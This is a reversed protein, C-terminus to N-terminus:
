DRAFDAGIEYVGEEVKRCRVVVAPEQTIDLDPGIPLQLNLLTGPALAYRGIFAVGHRSINRLRVRFDATAFGPRSMGVILATGLMFRRPSRRESGRVDVEDTALKDLIRSVEEDSLGIDYVPRQANHPRQLDTDYTRGPAPNTSTTEAM